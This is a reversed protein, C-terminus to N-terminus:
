QRTDKAAMSPIKTVSERLDIEFFFPSSWFIVSMLRCVEDAQCGAEWEKKLEKTEPSHQFVATGGNVQTPHLMGNPPGTTAM